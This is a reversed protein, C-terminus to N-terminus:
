FILLACSAPLIYSALGQSLAGVKSTLARPTQLSKLILNKCSTHTHGHSLAGPVAIGATGNGRFFLNSIGSSARSPHMVSNECQRHKFTFAHLCRRPAPFSTMGAHLSLFEFFNCGHFEWKLANGSNRRSLIHITQYPQMDVIM